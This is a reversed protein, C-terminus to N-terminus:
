ANNGAQVHASNPHAMASARRVMTSEIGAFEM